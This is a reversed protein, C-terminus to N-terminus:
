VPDGAQRVPPTSLILFFFAVTRGCTCKTYVHVCACTHVCVIGMVLLIGPLGLLSFDDVERRTHTSALKSRDPVMHSINSRGAERKREKVGCGELFLVSHM